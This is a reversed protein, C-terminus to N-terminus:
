DERRLRRLAAFPSDEPHPEPPTFEVGEKRPFPDIELAFHEVVLDAIDVSGDPSVDPPDPAELDVEMEQEDTPAHISGEPVVRVTFAGSLQQDLREVTVSCTQTFRAEWSGSVEVGDFWPKLLVEASLHELGPLDLARRIRDREAENAELRRVTQTPAVEFPRVIVSWPANMPDGKAM